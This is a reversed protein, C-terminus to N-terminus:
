SRWTRHILSQIAVVRSDSMVSNQWSQPPRIPSRSTASNGSFNARTTTAFVPNGVPSPNLAANWCHSSNLWLM